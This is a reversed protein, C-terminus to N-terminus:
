ANFSHIDYIAPCFRTFCFTGKYLQEGIIEVLLESEQSENPFGKFSDVAVSDDEDVGKVRIFTHTPEETRTEAVAERLQRAAM